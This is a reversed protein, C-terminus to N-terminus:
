EQEEECLIFNEGNWRYSHVTGDAYRVTLQQRDEEWNLEEYFAEAEQELACILYTDERFLYIQDMYIDASKGSQEDDGTGAEEDSRSTQAYRLICPQEQGDLSVKQEWVFDCDYIGWIEDLRQFYEQDLYLYDSLVKEQGNEFTSIYVQVGVMDFRESDYDFVENHNFYRILECDMEGSWQYLYETGSIASGHHHMHLQRQEQDIGYSGYYEFEEPGKIFQGKSPSWIYRTATGGNAGYYYEVMLDLYGDANFDEFSYPHWMCSCVELVQFPHDTGKESVAVQYTYSFLEGEQIDILECDFAFIQDPGIETEFYFMDQNLDSEKVCGKATINWSYSEQDDYGLARCCNSLNGYFTDETTNCFIQYWQDEQCYYGYEAEDTTLMIFPDTCYQGVVYSYITCDLMNPHLTQLYERLERYTDYVPISETTCLRWEIEQETDIKRFWMCEQQIMASSEPAEKSCRYELLRNEENFSFRFQNYWLTLGNVYPPDGYRKLSIEHVYQQATEKSIQWQPINQLLALIHSQWKKNSGQTRIEYIGADTVLYTYQLNEGQITAYEQLGGEIEKDPLEALLEVYGDYIGEHDNHFTSQLEEMQEWLHSVLEDQGWSVKEVQVNSDQIKNGYDAFIQLIMKELSDESDAAEITEADAEAAINEANRGDTVTEGPFVGDGAGLWLLGMGVLLCVARICRKM